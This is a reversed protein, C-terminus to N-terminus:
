VYWGGQPRRSKERVHEHFERWHAHQAEAFATDQVGKCARLHSFMGTRSVCQRKCVPCTSMIPCRGVPSRCDTLADM